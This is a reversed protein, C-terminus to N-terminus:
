PHDNKGFERAFDELDDFSNEDVYIRLDLGDVDGDFNSDHRYIDSCGV